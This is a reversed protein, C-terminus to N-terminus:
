AQDRVQEVTQGKHCGQGPRHVFTPISYGRSVKRYVSMPAATTENCDYCVYRVKSGKNM